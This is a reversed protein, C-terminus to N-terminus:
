IPGHDVLLVDKLEIILQDKGLKDAVLINSRAEKLFKIFAIRDGVEIGKIPM